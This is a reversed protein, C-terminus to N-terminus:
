LDEDSTYIAEEKHKSTTYIAQKSPSTAPTTEVPVPPAVFATFRAPPNWTECSTFRKPTLALPSSKNFPAPMTPTIYGMAMTPPCVKEPQPKTPTVNGRKSPSLRMKELARTLAPNNQKTPSSYFTRGKYASSRSSVSSPPRRPPVGLSLVRQPKKLVKPLSDDSSRTHDGESTGPPTSDFEVFSSIPTESPTEPSTSCVKQTKSTGASKKVVRVIRKKPQSQTETAQEEQSQLINLIAQEVVRVTNNDGGPTKLEPVLDMINQRNRIFDPVAPVVPLDVSNASHIGSESRDDVQAAKKAKKVVKKKKKVMKPPAMIASGDHPPWELGVPCVKTTTMHTEPPKFQAFMNTEEFKVDNFDIIKPPPYVVRTTFRGKQVIPQVSNAANMLAQRPLVPTTQTEPPSVTFRQPSVSEKKDSKTCLIITEEEEGTEFSSNGTSISSTLRNDIIALVPNDHHPKVIRVENAFQQLIVEHFDRISFLKYWEHSDFTVEFKDSYANALDYLCFNVNPRLKLRRLCEHIRIKGAKAMIVALDDVGITLPM